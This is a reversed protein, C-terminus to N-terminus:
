CAPNLPWPIVLTHEARCSLSDQQSLAASLQLHYKCIYYQPGAATDAEKKAGFGFFAQVPAVPQRVPRRAAVQLLLLV